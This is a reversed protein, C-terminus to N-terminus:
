SEAQAQRRAARRKPRGPTMPDVALLTLLKRALGLPGDLDIRGDALRALAHRGRRTTPKPLGGTLPSAILANFDGLRGTIELDHARDEDDGTDSVEIEEGRFDLRVPSYGDVFRLLISGRIEAALEPRGDAAHRVLACITAAVSDDSVEGLHVLPPKAQREADDM